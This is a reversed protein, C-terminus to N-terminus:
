SRHVTITNAYCTIEQLEEPSPVQDKCFKLILNMILTGNMEKMQKHLSIMEHLQDPTFSNLFKTISEQLSLRYTDNEGRTLFMKQMNKMKSKIPKKTIEAEPWKGKCFERLEKHIHFSLAHGRASNQIVQFCKGDLIGIILRPSENKNHVDFTSFAVIFKQSEENGEVIQFSKRVSYSHKPNNERIWKEILLNLTKAPASSDTYIKM